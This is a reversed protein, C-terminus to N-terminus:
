ACRYGNDGGLFLVDIADSDVLQALAKITPVSATGAGMDAIVGLRLPYRHSPTRFSSTPSWHTGDGVRYTYRQGPQLATMTAHHVTGNWGGRKYTSTTGNATNGGDWEVVSSTNLYTIWTAHMTDATAGLTIHLQEPQLSDSCCRLECLGALGCVVRLPYNGGASLSPPIEELAQALGTAVVFCEIQAVTKNGFHERCAADLSSALANLNTTNLLADVSLLLTECAACGLM